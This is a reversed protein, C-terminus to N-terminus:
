VSAGSDTYTVSIGEINEEFISSYEGGLPYYVGGTGGTGFTLDTVFDEEDGTQPEEVADGDGNADTDTDGNGCAALAVLAFSAALATTTRRIRMQKRRPSTRPHNGISR